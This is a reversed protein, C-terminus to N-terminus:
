PKNGLGVGAWSHLTQGGINIAAIGTSGTVAVSESPGGLDKIIARLLVSKGTGASGTFFISEGERVKHLIQRQEDSLEDYTPALSVPSIRDDVDEPLTELEAEDPTLLLKPSPQVFPTRPVAVNTRSSQLRPRLLPQTSNFRISGLTKPVLPPPQRAGPALQELSTSRFVATRRPTYYITFPYARRSSTNFISNM